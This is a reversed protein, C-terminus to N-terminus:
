FSAMDIKFHLTTGLKNQTQKTLHAETKMITLWALKASVVYMAAHSLVCDELAVCTYIVAPNQKSALNVTLRQSTINCLVPIKCYLSRGAEVKRSVHFPHTQATASGLLSTLWHIYFSVGSLSSKRRDGIRSDFTSPLRTQLIWKINGKSHKQVELITIFIKQWCNWVTPSVRCYRRLCLHYFETIKGKLRSAFPHKKNCHSCCCCM